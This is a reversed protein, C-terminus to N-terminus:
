DTEAIRLRMCAYSHRMELHVGGEYVRYLLTTSPRGNYFGDDLYVIWGGLENDFAGLKLPFGQSRHVDKLPYDPCKRLMYAKAYAIAQEKTEINPDGYIMHRLGSSECAAILLLIAIVTALVGINRSM